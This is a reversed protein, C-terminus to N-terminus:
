EIKWHTGKTDNGEGKAILNRLLSFNQIESQIVEGNSASTFAQEFFVPNSHNLDQNWSLPNNSNNQYLFVLHYGDTKQPPSRRMRIAVFAQMQGNRIQLGKMIPEQMEEPTIFNQEVRDGMSPIQDFSKQGGFLADLTSIIRAYSFGWVTVNINNPFSPQQQDQTYFQLGTRLAVKVALMMIPVCSAITQLQCIKQHMQIRPYLTSILRSIFPAMYSMVKLATSLRNMPEQQLRVLYGNDSKKLCSAVPGMLHFYSDVFQTCKLRWSNALIGQKIPTFFSIINM